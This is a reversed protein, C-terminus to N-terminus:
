EAEIVKLKVHSQFSFDSLDVSPACVGGSGSESPAIVGGSGQVHKSEGSRKGKWLSSKQYRQTKLGSSPTTLKKKHKILGRLGGYKVM